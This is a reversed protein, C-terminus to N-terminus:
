VLDIPVIPCGYVVVFHHLSVQMFYVNIVHHCVSLKNLTWGNQNISIPAAFQTNPSSMYFCGRMGLNYFVKLLSVFM